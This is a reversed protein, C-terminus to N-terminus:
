RITGLEIELHELRFGVLMAWTDIFANM